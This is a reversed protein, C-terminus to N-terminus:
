FVDDWGDRLDVGLQSTKRGDTRNGLVRGKLCTIKNNCSKRPDSEKPSM